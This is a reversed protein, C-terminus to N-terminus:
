SSHCLHLSVQMHNQYKMKCGNLYRKHTKFHPMDSKKKLCNKLPLKVNADFNLAFGLMKGLLRDGYM